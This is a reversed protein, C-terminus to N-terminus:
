SVVHDNADQAQWVLLNFKDERYLTNQTLRYGSQARIQDILTLKAQSTTLGRHLYSLAGIFLDTLQMLESEHSRIQQIRLIHERDFDYRSNSLVNRLGSVLDQSRTDKIDLYIEYKSDPDFIHKLLVFFMKYYFTNHDQGFEGHRLLRKDPIVVGRFHLAPEQFFYSILAQYLDLRKPSIKTWKVEFQRSLRYKSKLDRLEDAVRRVQSQDCWVAGLSMAPIGDHELHCSEDCYINYLDSM